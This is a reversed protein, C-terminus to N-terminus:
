KKEIINGMGGSHIWLTGSSGGGKLTNNLLQPNGAKRIEVGAVKNGRIKNEELLGAGSTHVLVGSGKNDYIENSLLYPSSENKIEVGNLINEYIQNSKIAGRGHEYCFVGNGHNAFISNNELMPTAGQSIEVGSFKNAYIRNLKISGAGQAQILIGAKASDHIENNVIVPAAHDKIIIESCSSTPIMFDLFGSDDDHNSICNAHINNGSFTGGSQGSVVVGGNKNNRIINETVSFVTAGHVMIGTKNDIIENSTFEGRGEDMISIGIQPSSNISNKLVVPDGGSSVILNAELNRSITNQTIKGRGNNRVLIGTKQNAYIQNKEILPAANDEVVVGAFKNQFIDNHRITAAAGNFVYIGADHTDHITNHQILPVESTSIAIGSLMSGFIDNSSYVGQAHGKIFIGSGRCDHITNRSMTPSATSQVLVGGGKSNVIFNNEFVSHSKAAVQVCFDKTSNGKVALGKILAQTATVQLCTIDQECNVVVAAPNGGTGTLMIDKDVLLPGQYTGPSLKVVDGPKALLLTTQLQGPVDHQPSNVQWVKGTFTKALADTDLVFPQSVKNNITKSGVASVLSAIPNPTAQATPSAGKLPAPDEKLRGLLISRVSQPLQGRVTAEIDYFYTSQGIWGQDITKYSEIIAEFDSTIEDQVLLGNNVKTLSSLFILSGAQAANRQAEQLANQQCVKVTVNDCGVEGHEKVTTLKELTEKLQSYQQEVLESALSHLEQELDQNVGSFVNLQHQYTETEKSFTRWVTYADKYNKIASAYDAREREISHDPAEAQLQQAALFTEKAKLMIKKKFAVQSNLSEEEQQRSVIATSLKTLGASHAFYQQKKAQYREGVAFGDQALLPAGQFFLPLLVFVLFTPLLSKHM